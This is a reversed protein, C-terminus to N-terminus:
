ELEGLEPQMVKDAEKKVQRKADQVKFFGHRRDGRFGFEPNFEYMNCNGKKDAVKIVNNAILCKIARGVGSRQMGLLKAIEIQTIQLVNGYKLRSLMVRLVNQTKGHLDMQALKLEGVLNMCYWGIDKAKQENDDM